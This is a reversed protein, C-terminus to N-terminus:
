REQEVVEYLFVYYLLVFHSVYFFVYYLLVFSFQFACLCVQQLVCYVHQLVVVLFFFFFFDLRVCLAM